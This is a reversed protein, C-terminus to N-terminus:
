VASIGRAQRLLRNLRREPRWDCRDTGDRGPSPPRKGPHQPPAARAIRAAGKARQTGGSEIGVKAQGCAHRGAGGKVCPLRMHSQAGYERHDEVTFRPLPVASPPPPPPPFCRNPSRGRWWSRQDGEGAIRHLVVSLGTVTWIRYGQGKVPCPLRLRLALWVQPWPAGSFKGGGQQRSARGVTM